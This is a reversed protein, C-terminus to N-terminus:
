DKGHDAEEPKRRYAHIGDDLSNEYHSRGGLSNTLWIGADDDACAILVWMTLPPKFGNIDEIVLYVPEGDMQRLEDLTLPKEEAKKM